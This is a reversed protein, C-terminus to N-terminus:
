REDFLSLQRPQPAIMTQVEVDDSAGRTLVLDVTKEKTALLEPQALPRLAEIVDMVPFDRRDALLKAVQRSPWNPLAVEKPLNADATIFQKVLYWGEYFVEMFSKDHLLPCVVLNRGEDKFPKDGRGSKAPAIGVRLGRGPELHDRNIKVSTAVWKASDTRGVFLDAKWVEGISYPLRERTASSRFARAISDIHKKLNVPHGRVGSLLVADPTLLDRATDILEEPGTKEAAFLISDLAEGKLKCLELARNVRECVMPDKRRIADHVAYEFCIGCDGDGPRQLRALLSLKLDDLGGADKVVQTKLGLLLGTLIPRTVAILASVEDAVPNLQREARVDMTLAYSKEPQPWETRHCRYLSHYL